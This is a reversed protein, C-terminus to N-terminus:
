PTGHGFEADLARNLELVNVQREGFLGFWRPRALREVLDRVRQESIGRAQAVRKAQLLANALSIDPDLGSGSATIADIPVPADPPLGNEQRYAEARERLSTLLTASTPGLNSAGSFRPDYDGASPRPHFYRPDHFAQGILRSGRVVGADDRVLSGEAQAPFLLRAVVTVGLPYILGLGITMVVVFVLAPRFERVLLRGM